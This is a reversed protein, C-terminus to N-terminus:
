AWALRVGDGALYFRVAALNDVVVDGALDEAAHTTALALTPCGAARASALGSAADEVVLCDRPAAGFAAAGAEFPDPHPKGREVDDATILVSPAPLGTAALRAAALPRSSSTVIACRGAPALVELAAVAGPLIEIGDTDSVEIDVIRAYAADREAAPRDELLRDVIARAPIGHFPFFREAPIAYEEALRAWSRVVAALSNILTGDMDFLVAAFARDFPGSAPPPTASM